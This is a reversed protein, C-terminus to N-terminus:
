SLAKELDLLGHGLEPTFTKGNMAAVKSSTSVLKERVQEPSLNPDRALVCAAAGTVHPTAMSTGDWSAYETESPNRAASAQMPLTSLINVGPAALSIHEGTNSFSARQNDRGVAGVAIVGPYAGPYETPNGEEFENGMAAVVTCGSNLLRRFLIEETPNSLTGGISLNLVRIGANRASNLARQYSVDDVYYMGDVPDPTDSFNKWINLDCRVVGAIGIGNNMEAGIIGAVHTGHGVVDINALREHIYSNIVNGLDPHDLDVGTDLVGVRISSADPPAGTRHWGIAKLGWQRPVMPDNPLPRPGVMWRRPVPHAYEIGPTAELERATEELDASQAIRLMVLGRLDENESNRVSTAFAAAINTPAISLPRGGTLRSFVPIAEKIKGDTVLHAFLREAAAPLSLARITAVQAGELDPISGVLDPACRVMLVGPSFSSRNELRQVRARFRKISRRGGPTATAVSARGGANEKGTEERETM